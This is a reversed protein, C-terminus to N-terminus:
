QTANAAIKDAIQRGQDDIQYGCAEADVVVNSVVSLTHQCAWGRGDESTIRLAITPVDGVLDATTVPLTQGKLTLTLRQGACARWQSTQGTVFALALDASPFGVVTEDVDRQWRDGPDRVTVFSMATFGSYQYVAANRVTLAGLCQPNSVTYVSMNPAHVIESTPQMDSAGMVTNVEEATLLMSDLREPAVTPKPQSAPESTPPTSGPGRVLLVVVVVVAVVAVAAAAVVIIIIIIRRNM